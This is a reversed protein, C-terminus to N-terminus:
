VHSNPLNGVGSGEIRETVNGSKVNTLERWYPIKFTFRCRIFTQAIKQLRHM